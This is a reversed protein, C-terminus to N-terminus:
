DLIADAKDLEVVPAPIVVPRRRPFRDIFGEGDFALLDISGNGSQDGIEFLTTEEFLSQNNPTTLEPASRHHLVVNSAFQFFAVVPAIMVRMGKGHPHGSGADLRTGVAFRVVDAVINGLVWNANAVKLGSYEVQGAQIGM